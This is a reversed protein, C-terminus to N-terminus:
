LNWFSSLIEALLAAPLKSALARSKLVDMHVLM